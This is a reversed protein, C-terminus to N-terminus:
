PALDIEHDVVLSRVVSSVMPALPSANALCNSAL